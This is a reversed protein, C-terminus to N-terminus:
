WATSARMPIICSGTGSRIAAFMDEWGCFDAAPVPNIPPLRLRDDLSSIRFCFTLDLPGGIEYIDLEDVDLMETLFEKLEADCHRSLELRVPRGRKRKKISEQIEILLDESERRHGPDSNRTVRFATYAVIDHLEFLDGFHRAILSELLLFARGEEAPAEVLRPLIAPVQVM